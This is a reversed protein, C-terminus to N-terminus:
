QSELTKCRLDLVESIEKIETIPTDINSIAGTNIELIIFHVEKVEISNEEAVKAEIISIIKDEIVILISSNPMQIHKMPLSPTIIERNGQSNYGRQNRPERNSGINKSCGTNWKSGIPAKPNTQNLDSPVINSAAPVNLSTHALVTGTTSQKLKFLQVLQHAKIILRELDDIYLLQSEIEPPFAEKFKDIIQTNTAGILAALLDLEHAFEHMTHTDANFAIKNWARM